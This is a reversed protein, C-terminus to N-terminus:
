GKDLVVAKQWPDASEGTVRAEVGALAAQRQFALFEELRGARVLQERLLAAENRLAAVEDRLRENEGRVGVLLVYGEWLSSVGGAAGRVGKQFPAIVALTASTLASTGSPDRVQLSVSVLSAVLLTTFVLTLRHPLVRRAMM